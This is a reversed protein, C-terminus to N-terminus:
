TSTSALTEYTGYLERRMRATTEARFRERMLAKVKEREGSPRSVTSERVQGHLRRSNGEILEFCRAVNEETHDFTAFSTGFRENVRRIVGGFDTTAEEFTALTFYSRYSMVPRYFGLYERIAPRLTRYPYSQLFARSLIAAEPDRLLVLTPIGMRAAAIVQAPAHLHHAMRVPRGQAVEFASVSFGNASRPFGEIVIETEPGVVGGRPGAAPGRRRRAIPLYLAPYRSLLLRTEYRAQRAGRGFLSRAQDLVPPAAGPGAGITNGDHAARRDAKRRYGARLDTM